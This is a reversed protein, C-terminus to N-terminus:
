SPPPKEILRLYVQELPDAGSGPKPRLLDRISQHEIVRGSDIIAVTDCLQEVEEMYHSTYIVTNGETKLAKIAELIIRRSQTDIGVTPEDLYLVRPDNLLGIALNLRRKLGGSYAGAMRDLYDRIGCITIAKDMREAALAGHLGNIGAFFRLNERGTLRPYFAYDQPVLATLTLVADREQSLRRGLVSVEGKQLPLIGTMVSILTTKGAGNPGLLGFFTGRAITLTVNDLALLAAGAYTHSLQEICIPADAEDECSAARTKRSFMM